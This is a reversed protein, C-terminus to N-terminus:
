MFCVIISGNGDFTGNGNNEKEHEHGKLFCSKRNMIIDCINLNTLHMEIKEVKLKSIDQECIKKSKRFASLM